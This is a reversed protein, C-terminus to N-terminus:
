KVDIGGHMHNLIRSILEAKNGTRPLGHLLLYKKLDTMTLTGLAGKSALVQLYNNV